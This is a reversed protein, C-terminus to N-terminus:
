SQASPTARHRIKAILRVHVSWVVASASSVCLLLFPCVLVVSFARFLCVFPLGAILQHTRAAVLCTPLCITCYRGSSRLARAVVPCVFPPCRGPFSAPFGRVDRSWFGGAAIPRRQRGTARACGRRARDDVFADGPRPTAGDAM